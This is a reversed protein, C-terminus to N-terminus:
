SVTFTTFTVEVLNFFFLITLYIPTIPHPPTFIDSSNLKGKSGKSGKGGKGCVWHVYHNSGTFCVLIFRYFM